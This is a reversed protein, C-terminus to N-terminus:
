IFTKHLVAPPILFPGHRGQLLALKSNTLLARIIRCDTSVSHLKTQYFISWWGTDTVLDHSRVSPPSVPLVDCLSLWATYVCLLGPTQECWSGWKRQWNKGNKRKDGQSFYCRYCMEAAFVGVIFRPHMYFAAPTHSSCTWVGILGPRWLDIDINESRSSIKFPNQCKMKCNNKYRLKNGGSKVWIDSTQLM